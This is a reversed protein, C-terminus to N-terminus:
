GPSRRCHRHRRKPGGRTKAALVSPLIRRIEYLPRACTWSKHLLDAAATLHEVALDFFLAEASRGHVTADLIADDYLNTNRIVHDFITPNSTLGIVALDRVYHQLTGHGLLDRTINDLWLRQSLRHLAATANM